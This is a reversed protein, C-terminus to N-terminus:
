LGGVRATDVGIEGTILSGRPSGLPETRGPLIEIFFENNDNLATRSDDDLAPTKGIAKVPCVQLCNGCDICKVPDIYARRDGVYICDVPCEEACSQDLVDLCNDTIYYSM